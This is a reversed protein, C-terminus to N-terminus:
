AVYQAISDLDKNTTDKRDHTTIKSIKPLYYIEINEYLFKLTFLLYM